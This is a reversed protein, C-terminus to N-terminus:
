IMCDNNKIIVKVTGIRSYNSASTNVLHSSKKLIENVKKINNEAVYKHLQDKM